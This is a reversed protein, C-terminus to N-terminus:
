RDFADLRGGDAPGVVALFRARPDDPNTVAVNVSALPLHYDVVWQEYEECTLLVGSGKDGTVLVDPRDDGIRRREGSRFTQRLMNILDTGLGVPGPVSWTGLFTWGGLLFSVCVIPKALGALGDEAVNPALPRMSPLMVIPTENPLISGGVAARMAVITARALRVSPEKTM